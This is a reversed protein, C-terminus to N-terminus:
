IKVVAPQIAQWRFPMQTEHVRIEGLGISQTEIGVFGDEIHIVGLYPGYVGIWSHVIPMQTGPRNECIAYQVVGIPSGDVPHFAVGLPVDEDGTRSAYPDEIRGPGM